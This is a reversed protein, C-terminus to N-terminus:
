FSLVSLGKKKGQSVQQKHLEAVAAATLASIDLPNSMTNANFFLFCCCGKKKGRERKRREVQLALRSSKWTRQIPFAGAARRKEERRREQIEEDRCREVDHLPKGVHTWRTDFSIQSYGFSLFTFIFRSSLGFSVKGYPFIRQSSDPSSSEHLRVLFYFYFFFVSSLLFGYRQSGEDYVYILRFVHSPFIFICVCERGRERERERERARACQLAEKKEVERKKKQPLRM